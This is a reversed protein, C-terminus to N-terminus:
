KKIAGMNELVNLAANKWTYRKCIEYSEEALRRRYDDDMLVRITQEVIEDKLENRRERTVNEFSLDMDTGIFGSYGSLTTALGTANSCIIANKAFGNEIASICFTEHARFGTEEDDGYNLYVWIKSRKQLEALEPKSLKGVISIGPLTKYREPVDNNYACIVLEFDPIMRKVCPYIADIFYKLGREKCSSWVMMNKKQGVDSDAYLAEDVGNFTLAFRNDDLGLYQSILANKHWESLCMIKKFLNPKLDQYNRAMNIAAEHSMIFINDCDIASSLESAVRSSIFYDFHQYECRKEFYWRPVYEVGTQSFHWHSPNGFIIVHYGMGQLEDAIRITWTESGGLNNSSADWFPETGLYYTYIGIVQKM